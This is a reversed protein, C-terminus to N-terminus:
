AVKWLKVPADYGRIPVAGLFSLENAEDGLECRMAESILFNSGFEKNQAEIRSALNVTDGIVTFEKRSATGVNGTVVEGIHVAIGIEIPWEPHRQNDGTIAALMQRGAAVARQAPRPEALPAGFLALFGDGLFKNVIGGHRDVAAVLVAFATELRAVVAEPARRSSAATFGRIDVFMVAVRRVESVDAGGAALLREVVQPSVHQGFLSTIRDRADLAALTGYLQRRLRTAVWGAVVGALLLVFSRILDFGITLVVDPHAGAASRHIAAILFLETAAVAGTFASLWFDLRLTSLIIFLFYLFPATFGLAQTLEMVQLQVLLVVSPLSTEILANLYRLFKPVDRHSALRRRLVTAIVLQYAIFPTLVAIPTTEHWHAGLMAEYSAPLVLMAGVVSALLVSLVVALALARRRESQITERALARSYGAQRGQDLVGGDALRNGFTGGGSM